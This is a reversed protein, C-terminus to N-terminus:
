QGDVFLLLRNLDEALGDTFFETKKLQTMPVNSCEM